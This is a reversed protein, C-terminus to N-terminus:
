DHLLSEYILFERLVEPVIWAYEERISGELPSVTQHWGLAKVASAVCRSLSFAHDLEHRPLLVEWEALYVNLLEMMETSLGYDDGDLELSIEVSVFLTRLSVFPHTINADGWDFFTIRDGRVLVNGDTLDGHNISEPIRVASLRSCIDDFRPLLRNLEGLEEITLGGPQGVRLIRTDELLEQFRAPLKALRWDPVGLALLEPVHQSCEIQMRAYRAIVPAWPRTDKSPRIRVRLQEGGDRMLMWGRSRDVAVLEPICDPFWAALRETLAAEHITEAATAKFFLTGESSPIRLVTSWPYAHPQEIDGTVRIGSRATEAHIWTHAGTLWVPDEWRLTNQLTM